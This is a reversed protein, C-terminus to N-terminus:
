ATRRLIRAAIGEAIERAESDLKAKVLQIQAGISDRSTQIMKEASARAQALIEARKEMAEARIQEQRRYGEMRGNKIVAQYKNWLELQHDLQKRTYEMLGTTRSEREAQVRLLPQFLLKNLILVLLLFILIAPVLSGDLSIMIFLRAM